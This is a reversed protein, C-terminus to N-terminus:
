CTQNSVRFVEFRHNIGPLTHLKLVSNLAGKKCNNQHFFIRRVRSHLLAMACMMCPEHSLYVDYGSCIYGGPPSAPDNQASKKRPQNSTQINIHPWAGGGLWKAVGDIAVMPPHALPHSSLDGRTSSIVKNQNPDVILCAGASCLPSNPSSFQMTDSDLLTLIENMFSTIQLLKENSFLEGSLLKTLYADEHFTCPWYLCAEEHLKKLRPPYKVVKSLFLKSTFMKTDVGLDVLKKLIIQETKKCVVQSLNQTACNDELRFDPVSTLGNIQELHNNSDCSSIFSKLTDLYIFFVDESEKKMLEVNHDDVDPKNEMCSNSGIKRRYIRKLHRLDGVPLTKALCSVAKSLTRKDKIQVVVVDTFINEKGIGDSLIPTVTVSSLELLYKGGGIPHVAEPQEM